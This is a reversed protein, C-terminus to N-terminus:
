VRTNIGQSRLTSEFQDIGDNVERGAADLKNLAIENFKEAQKYDFELQNAERERKVTMNKKWNEVGKQHWEEMFGANRQLKNLQVRRLEQKQESKQKKEANSARKAM